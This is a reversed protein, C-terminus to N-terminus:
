KQFCLKESVCGCVSCIRQIYVYVSAQPLKQDSGKLRSISKTFFVHIESKETSTTLNLSFLSDANDNCRNRSLTFAVVPLKDKKELMHVLSLWVNKDQTMTHMFIAQHHQKMLVYISHHLFVVVCVRRRIDVPKCM